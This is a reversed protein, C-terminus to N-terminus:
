AWRGNGYAVSRVSEITEFRRTAMLAYEGTTEDPRPDEFIRNWFMIYAEKREEERGRKM